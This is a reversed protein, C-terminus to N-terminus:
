GRFWESPGRAPPGGRLETARCSCSLLVSELWPALSVRTGLGGPAALLLWGLRPSGAGWELVGGSRQSAVWAAGGLLGASRSTHAAGGETLM